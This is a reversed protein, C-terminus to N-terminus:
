WDSIREPLHSHTTSLSCDLYLDGLAPIENGGLTYVGEAPCAPLAEFFRDPGVVKLELNPVTDGPNLGSMNAFGRVAKQVGAINAICIARDSGRKWARAGVLLITAFLMLALIVVALEILTLGPLGRFRPSPSDTLGVVGADRTANKM